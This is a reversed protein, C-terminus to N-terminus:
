GEGAAQKAASAIVSNLRRKSFSCCRSRGNGSLGYAPTKAGRGRGEVKAKQGCGRRIPGGAAEAARFLLNNKTAAAEGGCRFVSEKQEKKNKKGRRLRTKPIEGGRGWFPWVEPFPSKEGGRARRRLHAPSPLPLPPTLTSGGAPVFLTAKLSRALLRLFGSGDTNMRARKGIFNSSVRTGDANIRM